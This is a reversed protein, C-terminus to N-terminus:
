KTREELQKVLDSVRKKKNPGDDLIVALASVALRITKNQESIRDDQKKLRVELPTLERHIISWMAGAGVSCAVAIFIAIVKLHRLNRNALLAAALLTDMRYQVLVKRHRFRATGSM